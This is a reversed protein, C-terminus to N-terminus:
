ITFQSIFSHINCIFVLFSQLFEVVYLAFCFIGLLGKIM